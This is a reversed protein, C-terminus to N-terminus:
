RHFCYAHRRAIEHRRQSLASPAHALIGGQVVLFNGAQAGAELQAQAQHVGGFHVAVAAGLAEHATLL